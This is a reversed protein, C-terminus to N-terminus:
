RPWLWGFCGATLLAYVLGDVVEKITNSWPQGKWISNAFQSLGYAMFSSAGVVRFVQLYHTDPALTRGAIYAAFFAIVLCYLFWGGLYKSMNPPASALITMTGVPGQKYKELTEPSKMDKQTCFPFVYLAPKLNAARIASRINDENPLKTYDSHHYPLLMHMVSSAVFVVVASLIIPLWLASLSVM